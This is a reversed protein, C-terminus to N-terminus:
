SARRRGSPRDGRTTAAPKLQAKLGAVLLLIAELVRDGEGNAAAREYIERLDHFPRPLASFDPEQSLDYDAEEDLGAMIYLKVPPTDLAPAIRKLTATSPQSRGRRWNSFQSQNVGTLRSLEAYDAIGAADMLARLYDGFQEYPWTAPVCALNPTTRVSTVRPRALPPGPRPPKNDPHTTM